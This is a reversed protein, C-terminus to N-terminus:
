DPRGPVTVVPCSVNLQIRKLLKHRARTSRNTRHALAIVTAKIENARRCIVDEARGFLMVSVVNRGLGKLQRGLMDLRFQAGMHADPSSPSHEIDLVYVVELSADRRSVLRSVGDIAERDDEAFDTVYLIREQDTIGIKAEECNKM